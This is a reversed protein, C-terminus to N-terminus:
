AGVAVPEAIRRGVVEAIVRVERMLQAFQQPYLSQAGDSLAKTPDPHVEVIIGDAGAAVAARAM